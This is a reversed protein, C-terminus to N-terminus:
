PDHSPIQMEEKWSLLVCVRACARTRVRVCVCARVFVHMLGLGWSLEASGM